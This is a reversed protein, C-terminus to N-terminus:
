YSKSHRARVITFAFHLAVKPMNGLGQLEKLICSDLGSKTFPIQTTRQGGPKQGSGVRQGKNKRCGLSKYSCLSRVVVLFAFSCKGWSLLSSSIGLKEYEESRARTSEETVCQPLPNNNLGEKTSLQKEWQVRSCKFSLPLESISYLFKFRPERILLPRVKSLNSLM